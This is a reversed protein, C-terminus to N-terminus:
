LAARGEDGGPRMRLPRFDEKPGKWRFKGQTLRGIQIAEEPCAHLCRLCLACGEGLCPRGDRMEIVQVPCLRACLGCGVCAEDAHLRSLAYHETAQYLWSWLRDAWAVKPSPARTNGGVEGPTGRVREQVALSLAVALRDVGPLRDYDKEVAKRAMVSGKGAIALGDTGPMLVSGGGLPDYGRAALRALNREVTGGAVLGKTCFVFAGRGEGPPLRDVYDCVLRPADCAYVPSGLALVDFTGVDEAAQWEISRVEIEVGPDSLVDAVQRAVTQAVFATNGTGSFFLVLLRM